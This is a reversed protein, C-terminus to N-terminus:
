QPGEAEFLDTRRSRLIDDQVCSLDLRALLLQRVSRRAQATIWGRPDAITSPVNQQPGAANAFLVFRGNEAARSRIHAEIIPRKWMQKRGFLYSIVIIVEARRLALWRSVEPFRLDYCIQMGVTTGCAAKVAPPARGALYYEADLGYLHAKDYRAAIRGDPGILLASNSWGRDLPLHTGLVVTLRSKRALGRVEELAAEVADPDFGASSKHFAPAYGTLACEPFVLLAVRARRAAEVFRAIERLNRGLDATQPMQALGVALTERRM